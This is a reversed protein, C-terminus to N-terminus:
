GYKYKPSVRLSNLKAETLLQERIKSINELQKHTKCRELELLINKKAHVDHVVLINSKLTEFYEMSRAGPEQSRDGM